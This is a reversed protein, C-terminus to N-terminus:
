LLLLWISMMHCAAMICAQWRDAEKMIKRREHNNM